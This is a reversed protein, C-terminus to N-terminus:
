KRLRPIRSRRFEVANVSLNDITENFPGIAGLLPGVPGMNLATDLEVLCINWSSRQM